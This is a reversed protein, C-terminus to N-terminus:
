NWWEDGGVRQASTLLELQRIDPAQTHESVLTLIYIPVRVRFGLSQYLALAPLNDSYLHLFPTEHRSLITWALQTVLAKAIGKGRFEPAVCVASIETFGPPKLREGAMAILRGHRRLGIYTGLAISRQRFPGPETLEVLRMIDPVDSLGLTVFAFSDQLVPPSELVMQLGEARRTFELGDPPAFDDAQMLTLGDQSQAALQAFGEVDGEGEVGTAAFHSVIPQMMVAGGQSVSLHKQRHALAHWVPRDLCAHRELKSRSLFSM